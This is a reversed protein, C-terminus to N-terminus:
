DWDWEEEKDFLEEFFEKDAVMIFLIAIIAALCRTITLVYRIGRIFRHFM